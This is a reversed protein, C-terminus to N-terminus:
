AFTAGSRAFESKEGRLRVTTHGDKSHTMQLRRAEATEIGQSKTASRCAGDCINSKLQFQVSTCQHAELKPSGIAMMCMAMTCKQYVRM